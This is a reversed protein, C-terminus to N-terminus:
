AAAMERPDAMGEKVGFHVLLINVPYAAFLGATLSVVLATWFRVDYLHSSGGVWLDVAVATLEMVTISATESTFADKMADALPVGDEVLPGVTLAYGSVYALVFTILAIGWQGLSMLGAAIFVGVIEGAGCGAYCHAVSRFGRRWLSDTSIQRRGSWFYGALGIVGSYLVTFFWVGKMLPPIGRNNRSMDRILVVLAAAGQGAWVWLFLPHSLLTSASM